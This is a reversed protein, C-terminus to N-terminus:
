ITCQENPPRICSLYCLFRIEIVNFILVHQMYFINKIELSLLMKKNHDAVIEIDRRTNNETYVRSLM